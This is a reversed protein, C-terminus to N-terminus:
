PFQQLLKFKLDKYRIDDTMQSDNPRVGTLIRRFAKLDAAGILEITVKPIPIDSEIKM